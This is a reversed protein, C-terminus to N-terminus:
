KVEELREEFTEAAEDLAALLKKELATDRVSKDYVM